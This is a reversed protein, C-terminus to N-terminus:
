TCPILSPSIVHSFVKWVLDQTARLTVQEARCEADNSYHTRYILAKYLGVPYGTPSQISNMGTLQRSVVNGLPRRFSEYLRKMSDLNDVSYKKGEPDIANWAGDIQFEDVLRLYNLASPEPSETPEVLKAVHTTIKPQFFMILIILAMAGGARLYNKHRIEITGPIAAGVGGAALALTTTFVKMQFETPNPFFTSMVLMTVLFGAGLICALLINIDLRGRILSNSAGPAEM